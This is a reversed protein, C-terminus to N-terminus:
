RTQEASQAPPATNSPAELLREVAALLASPAFPKPLFTGGTQDLEDQSLDMTSTILMPLHRYRPDDALAQHLGWGDLVPMALDSIVADATHQDLWNLAAAGHPVTVVHYHGLELIVRMLDAIDPNDEVILLTPM